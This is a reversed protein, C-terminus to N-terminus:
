MHLCNWFPRLKDLRNQGSFTDSLRPGSGHFITFNLGPNFLIKLLTEKDLFMYGFKCFVMTAKSWFFFLSSVVFHQELCHMPLYICFTSCFKLGPNATFLREPVPSEATYFGWRGWTQMWKCHFNSHPLPPCFGKLEYSSNALSHLYSFRYVTM